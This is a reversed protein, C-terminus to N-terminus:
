CHEKRSSSVNTPNNDIHNSRSTDEEAGVGEGAPRLRLVVSFSNRAVSSAGGRWEKRMRLKPPRSAKPRLKESNRSTDRVELRVSDMAPIKLTSGGAM